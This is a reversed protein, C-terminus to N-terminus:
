HCDKQDMPINWLFSINLVFFSRLIGEFNSFDYSNIITSFEAQEAGEPSRGQRSAEARALARYHSLRPSQNGFKKFSTYLNSVKFCVKFLYLYITYVTYVHLLICINQKNKGTPPWAVNRAMSWRPHAGLWEPRASRAISGQTCFTGGVHCLTAVEGLFELLFDYRVLGHKM